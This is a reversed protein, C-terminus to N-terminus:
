ININQNNKEGDQNIKKGKETKEQRSIKNLM